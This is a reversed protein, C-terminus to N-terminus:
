KIPRINSIKIGLGILVHNIFLLPRSTGQTIGYICPINTPEAAELITRVVTKHSEPSNALDLMEATISPGIIAADMRYETESWVKTAQVKAGHGLRASRNPGSILGHHQLPASSIAMPHQDSKELIIIQQIGIFAKDKTTVMKGNADRYTVVDYTPKIVKEINRVISPNLHESDAPIYLYIGSEIISQLHYRIQEETVYNNYLIEYQKPAAAKYFALVKNWIENINMNPYNAVVWKSMDRAAACVFQEYLQGPNLRSVATKAYKIIDARNGDIDVPMDSCPIIKTIVGKDGHM